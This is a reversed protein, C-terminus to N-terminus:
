AQPSLHHRKNTQSISRSSFWVLERWGLREEARTETICENSLIEQPSYTRKKNHFNKGRARSPRELQMEPILQM